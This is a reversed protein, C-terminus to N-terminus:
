GGKRPVHASIVVLREGRKEGWLQVKIYYKKEM